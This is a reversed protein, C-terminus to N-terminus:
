NGVSINLVETGDLLVQIARSGVPYNVWIAEQTLQARTVMQDLLTVNEGNVRAIVTVQAADQSTGGFLEENIM